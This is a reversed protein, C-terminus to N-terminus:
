NRWKRFYVCVHVAGHLGFDIVIPKDGNYIFDNGKRYDFIHELFFQRTIPNLKGDEVKTETVKAEAEPIPVM